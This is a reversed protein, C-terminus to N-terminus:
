NEVIIAFSRSVVGEPGEEEDEEDDRFGEV